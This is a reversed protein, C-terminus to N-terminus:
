ALVEISTLKLTKAKGGLDAYTDAGDGGDVYMNRGVM